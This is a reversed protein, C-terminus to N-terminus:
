GGYRRSSSPVATPTHLFFYYTRRGNERGAARVVVAAAALIVMVATSVVRVPNARARTHETKYRPMGGFPLGCIQRTHLATRGDPGGSQDEIATGDSPPPFFFILYVRRAVLAPLFNRKKGREGRENTRKQTCHSGRTHTGTDTHIHSMITTDHTSHTHTHTFTKGTTGPGGTTDAAAATVATAPLHARARKTERRRKGGTGTDLSTRTTNKFCGRENKEFIKRTCFFFFYGFSNTTRALAARWCRHWYGVLPVARRCLLKEKIRPSLALSSHRGLRETVVHQAFFLRVTPLMCSIHSKTRKRRVDRHVESSWGKQQSTRAGGRYSGTHRVASIVNKREEKTKGRM